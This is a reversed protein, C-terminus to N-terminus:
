YPRHRDVPGYAAYNSLSRAYANRAERSVRPKNVPPMSVPTEDADKKAPNQIVPGLPEPPPIPTALAQRIERASAIVQNLRTEPHPHAHNFHSQVAPGLYSLGFYLSGTVVILAGVYVVPRLASPDCMEPYEIFDANPPTTASQFILAM